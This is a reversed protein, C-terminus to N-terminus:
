VVDQVLGPRHRNGGVRLDQDRLVVHFPQRDILVARPVEGVGVEPLLRNQPCDTQAPLAYGTPESAAPKIRLRKSTPEYRRWAPDGRTKAHAHTLHLRM